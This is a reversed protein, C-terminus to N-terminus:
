RSKLLERAHDRAARDDGDAGLMRVLEGVVGEGDLQVVTTLAPTQTSDKAITFHRAAMAAVQPLHTICLIQRGAALDRLQQGVARATRGGIGADIEDFVLLSDDAQAGDREQTGGRGRAGERGHVGTGGHAVGLLALMVRSLEGGSAVDRLPGIPLGPNAALRFEVTDAGRPGCGSDRPDVHVEFRAEPMALEALRARVAEALQPAAAARAQHLAEALEDRHARAADLRVQLDGMTLEAHQLTERRERCEEAHALVAAVTGGYKRTLRSIATLREEIEDLRGPSSELGALYTRLESAIDEAELRLSQLRTALPALAPDVEAGTELDTAAGAVLAAAGEGDEPVLAAAAASALQQLSELHRLRDRESALEREETETPAVTEIEGLEFSLLDLERERAGLQDALGALEQELSQTERYAAAMDAVRRSQEPGCFRDLSDLQASALMLKRHEHQGYFSILRTGLERLDAVTASRGGVYARTRGDPWVRRALVLEEADAPIREDAGGALESPLDFVGEVYAESAGARVIGAGARGGLLLDLAQALLTKGAGTEGTLSNLGPGLRLEARKLLLLNEIRLEALV